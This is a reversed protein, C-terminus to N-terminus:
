NGLNGEIRDCWGKSVSHPWVLWKDPIPGTYERWINLWDGDIELLRKVEDTDADERYLDAGNKDLFAVVLLDYDNEPLSEKHVDICHKFISNFSNEYDEVPPNPPQNNQSTHNQIGRDVFRIGAYREYEDLTRQTGLGYIGFDNTMEEGDTGLLQRVRKHTHTNAYTWTKNDDWHKTRGKRTYEHWAIVKHSHFLDYGHTYARVAISIEEGHFYFDPDHPVEEVFKGLTFAFHASYFRSPVPETASEWNPISAPLFFVVGEPTFRDFNMLWPENSRGAPDDEPNYSPLYGTILPKKHDIRQLYRLMKILSSDWGQTFRHHSDLQFTYKEGKYEKQIKNRAWCAGKSDQYPITLITVRKDDQFKDLNDWQDDKSTQWAITVRLNDPYDAKELLDTLTPVLEPDRYSAIQVFITDEPTILNEKDMVEKDITNWKGEPCAGEVPSFVKGKLACGCVGCRNIGLDTKKHECSNCIEIRKAALSTQSSDPKFAINWAKFIEEIKNM